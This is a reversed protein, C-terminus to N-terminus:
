LMVAIEMLTSGQFHGPFYETIPQQRTFALEMIPLRPNDLWYKM